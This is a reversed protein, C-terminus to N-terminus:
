PAAVALGPQVAAVLQAAAQSGAAIQGAPSGAQAAAAQIDDSVAATDMGLKTAVLTVLESLFAGAVVAPPATATSIGQLLSVASQVDTDAIPAFKYTPFPANLGWNPTVLKRALDGYVVAMEGLMAERGLTFFDSHDKSLAFSGVKSQGLQLFQTLTSAYMENDLLTFAEIFIQGAAGAANLIAMTEGQELGLVGGSLLSAAKRALDRASQGTSDPTRTTVTAWPIAQRGLFLKFLGLVRRKTMYAAYVPLMDSQGNRPDRYQNHLYILSREPPIGVPKGVDGPKAQVLSVPRGHADYVISTNSVPRPAIHEPCWRGDRVTLVIEHMTRGYVSAGAVQGQVTQMDDPMQELQDEVWAAQGTDGDAQVWSGQASRLPLTLAQEIARAKGDIRLMTDLDWQSPFGPDATKDGWWLGLMGYPNSTQELTGTEIDPGTGGMRADDVMTAGDYQGNGNMGGGPVAYPGISM